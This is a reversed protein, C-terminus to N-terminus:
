RQEESLSEECPWEVHCGSLEAIIADLQKYLDQMETPSLQTTSTKPQEDEDFFNAEMYPKVILDKIREKSYRIPLRILIGDGMSQGSDNLEASLLELWLHFSDNQKPTRQDTM